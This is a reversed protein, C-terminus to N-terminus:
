WGGCPPRCMKHLKISNARWELVRRLTRRSARKGGRTVITSRNMTCVQNKVKGTDRHTCNESVTWPVGLPLISLKRTARSTARHQRPRPVDRRASASASKRGKRESEGDRRRDVCFKVSLERSNRVISLRRERRAGRRRGLCMVTVERVAGAERKRLEETRRWWSARSGDSESLTVRMSRTMARPPGDEGEGWGGDM